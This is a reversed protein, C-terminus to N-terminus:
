IGLYKVTELAAHGASAVSEAISMPGQAAGATFVGEGSFEAFGSDAIKLSLLGALEKTDEGPLIGVSLVVLDFIEEVNKHAANDFFTVQLRDDETKFIDGPIARIMRIDSQSKEYFDQFDKGSTQVDIYFFTIETEPQRTRILGSMRLASGCCIKSCWLHGLKADRSGVCQIFAIKGPAKSDSPRSVRSDQRLMRELELSTIVNDFINYGYPKQEPNFASFGTALIIADAERSWLRNGKDPDESKKKLMVSFRGDSKTIKQVRSNTLVRIDPHQLVDKLKEEVVCAGCKVCKDAAKCTFNRAHGGLVASKEVLEVGVGLGTLDLAASLGAAGGGLVLVNKDHM